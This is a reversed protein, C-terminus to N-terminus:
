IEESSMNYPYISSYLALYLTVGMCTIVGSTAPTLHPIPRPIANRGYRYGVWNTYGIPYGKNKPRQPPKTTQHQNKKTKTKTTATTENNTKESKKFKARPITTPAWAGFPARFHTVRFRRCPGTSSSPNAIYGGFANPLM